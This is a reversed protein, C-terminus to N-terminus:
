EFGEPARGANQACVAPYVDCYSRDPDNREGWAYGLPIVVLMMLLGVVGGVLYPHPRSM